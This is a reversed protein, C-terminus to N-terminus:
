GEELAANKPTNGFARCGWEPDMFGCFECGGVRLCHDAISM